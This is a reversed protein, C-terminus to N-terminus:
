IWMSKWLCRVVKQANVCIGKYLCLQLLVSPVADAGGVFVCVYVCLPVMGLLIACIQSQCFSVVVFFFGLMIFSKPLGNFFLAPLSYDGQTIDALQQDSRLLCSCLLVNWVHSQPPRHSLWCLRFARLEGGRLLVGFDCSDASCGEM